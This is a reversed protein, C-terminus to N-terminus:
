SYPPKVQYYTMLAKKLINKSVTLNLIDENMESYCFVSSYSLYTHSNQLISENKNKNNKAHYGRSGLYFSNVLSIRDNENRSEKM